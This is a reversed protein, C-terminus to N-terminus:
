LGLVLVRWSFGVDCFSMVAVMARGVRRVSIQSRREMSYGMMRAPMARVEEPGRAAATLLAPPRPTM